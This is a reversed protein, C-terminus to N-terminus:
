PSSLSLPLSSSSPFKIKCPNYNLNLSFRDLLWNKSILAVSLCVSLCVASLRCVIINMLQLLLVSSFVNRM